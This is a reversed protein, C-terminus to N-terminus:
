LHTTLLRPLYDWSQVQPNHVIQSHDDHIFGFSLSPAYILLALACPIWNFSKTAKIAVSSNMPKVSDIQGAHRHNGKYQTRTRKSTMGQGAGTKTGAM